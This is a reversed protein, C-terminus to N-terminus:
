PDPQAFPAPAGEDLFILYDTAPPTAGLQRMLSAVQGRHYTSHNVLHRVMEGLAYTWTTGQPSEYSVPRDLAAATLGDICAMQQRAIEAWRAELEALSRSRGPDEGPAATTLWRGLWLWEGWAMHLLTGWLSRHSAALDRELLDRPLADSAQLLRRNAWANYSLLLGAEDGTVSPGGPITNAAHVTARRREM